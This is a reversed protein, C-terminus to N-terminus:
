KYYDENIVEFDVWVRNMKVEALEKIGILLNILKDQHDAKMGIFFPDDGVCKLVDDIDDVVTWARIISSELKQISNMNSM